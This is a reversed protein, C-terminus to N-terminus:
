RTIFSDLDSERRDLADSARKGAPDQFFEADIEVGFCVLETLRILRPKACADLFFERFTLEHALDGHVDLSQLVDARPPAIAVAPLERYASLGAASVRARLAALLLGAGGTAGHQGLGLKEVAGRFPARIGHWVVLLWRGRVLGGCPRPGICPAGDVFGECPSVGPSRGRAGFVFSRALFFHFARHGLSAHADMRALVVGDHRKRVQVAGDERSRAASGRAEFARAFGSGVRRLHRRLRCCAFGLDVADLAHHDFHFSEPGPALLRDASQLTGAEVEVRDDIRSGNRVAAASRCASTAHLAVSLQCRVVSSKPEHGSEGDDGAVAM